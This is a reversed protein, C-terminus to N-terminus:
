HHYNTLVQFPYSLATNITLGNINFAAKGTPAMLIALIDDLNVIRNQFYKILTNYVCTM